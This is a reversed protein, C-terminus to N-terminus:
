CLLKQKTLPKERAEQRTSLWNLACSRKPEHDWIMWCYRHDYTRRSARAPDGEPFCVCDDLMYVTRPPRRVFSGHRTPHCLSAINMLMAVQGGTEGIFRLAQRLFRDALGRGYPPNTVISAGLPKEQALFDRGPEGYGQDVLDTAIVAYGAAELEKAIAGDGCAPEWVPGVFREVSLLARIAAPPTPYFEFPARGPGLRPGAAFPSGQPLLSLPSM